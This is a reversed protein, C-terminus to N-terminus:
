EEVVFEFVFAGVVTFVVAFVALLKTWLWWQSGMPGTLLLRTAEASGLLVPVVLPLLLLALLSGRHRVGATLASVLTGMAAFGVNSLAAVLALPGPRSALPVDSLVIFLPVLVLELAVLAFFNVALKALFLLSPAIPYMTLARWCGAEREGAFSRECAMTGAFFVALWILGGAVQEKAELPLELQTALLFVLVLGLLVMGPWVHQARFERTLDKYILWWLSKTTRIAQMM